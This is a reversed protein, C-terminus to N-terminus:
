FRLLPVRVRGDKQGQAQDAERHLRLSSDVDLMLELPLLRVAHQLDETRSGLVRLGRLCYASWSLYKVWPEQIKSHGAWSKRRRRCFNDSGKGTKQRRWTWSRRWVARMTWCWVRCGETRWDWVEGTRYIILIVANIVHARVTAPPLQYTATFRVVALSRVAM